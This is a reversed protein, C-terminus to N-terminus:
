TSNVVRASPRAVMRDGHSGDSRSIDEHKECGQRAGEVGRGPTFQAAHHLADRKLIRLVAEGHGSESWFAAIAIRDGRHIVLPQDGEDAGQGIQLGALGDDGVTPPSEEAPFGQPSPLSISRAM